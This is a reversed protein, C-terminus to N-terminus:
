RRDRVGDVILWIGFVLAVLMILMQVNFFRGIVPITTIVVSEIDAAKPHQTDPQPNADGKVIWGTEAAGGIIRHAFSAVPTGDLRRGTYVVVDGEVPARLSDSVTVIADGPNIAPVMSGTLVVRISFLGAFGAIGLIVLLGVVVSGITYGIWVSKAKAPTFPDSEVSEVFDQPKNVEYVQDEALLFSVNSKKPERITVLVRSDSSQSSERSPFLVGVLGARYSGSEHPRLIRLFM